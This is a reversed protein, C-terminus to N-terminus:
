GEPNFIGLAMKIDIDTHVGELIQLSDKQQLVVGYDLEKERRDIYTTDSQSNIIAVNPQEAFYIKYEDKHEKYFQNAYYNFDGAVEEIGESGKLHEEFYKESPKLFM